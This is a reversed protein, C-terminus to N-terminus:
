PYDDFVANVFDSASKQDRLDYSGGVSWFRIWLIAGTKDTLCAIMSTAGGADMQDFPNIAKLVELAKRGRSSIEDSGYIILLGDAKQQALLAGVSGISYDFKEVKKPFLAMNGDYAYTHHYISYAVAKFLANVDAIEKKNKSSPTASGLFVQKAQMTQRLANLVNKKGAESWDDRKEKMGGATFECIEVKPPLLVVRKFNRARAELEPLNSKLAPACASILLMLPLLWFFAHRNKEPLTM